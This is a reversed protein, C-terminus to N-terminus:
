LGGEGHGPHYIIPQATAAHMQAILEAVSTCRVTSAVSVPASRVIAGTFESRSNIYVTYRFLLVAANQVEAFESINEYNCQCPDDHYELWGSIVSYAM